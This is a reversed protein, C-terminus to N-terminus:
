YHRLRYSRHTVTGIRLGGISPLIRDWQGSVLKLIPGANWRHKAPRCYNGLTTTGLDIECILPWSCVGVCKSLFLVVV